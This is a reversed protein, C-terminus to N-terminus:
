LSVTTVYVYILPSATQGIAPPAFIVEDGVQPQPGYVTGGLTKTAGGSAIINNNADTIKRFLQGRTADFGLSGMPFNADEPAYGPTNPDWPEAFIQPYYSALVPALPAAFNESQVYPAIPLPPPAPVPFTTYPTPYAAPTASYAYSPPALSAATTPFTAHVDGKSFVFIAVTFIGNAPGAGAPLGSTGSITTTAPCVVATWYYQSTPPTALNVPGTPYPAIDGSAPFPQSTGFSYAFPGVAYPVTSNNNFYQPFQTRLTAVANKAIVQGVSTEADEATWKAAVPFVSAIMILGISLVFIAILIEALSFAARRATLSLHSRGPCHTNLPRAPCAAAQPRVAILSCTVPLDANRGNDIRGAVLPLGHNNNMSGLKGNIRSGHDTIMARLGMGCVELKWSRIELKKVFNM